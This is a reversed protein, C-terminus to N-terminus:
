LKAGNRKGGPPLLQVDQFPVGLFKYVFAFRDSGFFPEGKGESNTVWLWPAGFAGRDLAEQTTNKLKDKWEKEGAKQLIEGVQKDDFVKEGDVQVDLLAKRVNEAVTLNVNEPPSWFLRLLHLITAEYVPNPYNAKIFHLSRQPLVTHGLTMLDHPFKIQLGPFRAVSRKADFIGYKAKAPLTWPPRNGSGANIAGLLVPHLEVQVNNANLLSRNRFLDLITLYSYLSAIDFYCDIKGDGAM